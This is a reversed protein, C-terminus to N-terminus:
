PELAGWVAWQSISPSCITMSQKYARLQKAKDSGAMWAIRWGPNASMLFRLSEVHNLTEFEFDGVIVVREGKAKIANLADTPHNSAGEHIFRYCIYADNRQAIEVGVDLSNGIFVLQIDDADADDVITAGALQAAARIQGEDAAHRMFIRGDSALTKIVCFYAEQMGCTVTVADPAISVGEEEQVRDSVWQRLPLIGPRDTYKTKGDELAKIAAKNVKRSSEGHVAYEVIDPLHQTRAALPRTLTKM